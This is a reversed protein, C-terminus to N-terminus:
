QSTRNVSKEGVAMTLKVTTTKLSLSQISQWLINYLYRTGLPHIKNVDMQVELPDRTM